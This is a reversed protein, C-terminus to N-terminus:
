SCCAGYKDLIWILTYLIPGLMGGLVILQQVNMDEKEQLREIAVFTVVFTNRM